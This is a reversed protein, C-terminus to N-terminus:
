LLTDGFFSWFIKGFVSQILASARQSCGLNQSTAKKNKREDARRWYGSRPGPRLGQCGTVFCRRAQSAHLCDQIRALPEELGSTIGFRSLSKFGRPRGGDFGVYRVLCRARQAVDASALKGEVLITRGQL